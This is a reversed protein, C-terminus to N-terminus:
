NIMDMVTVIDESLHMERIKSCAKKFTKVAETFPKDKKWQPNGDQQIFYSFAELLEDIPYEHIARVDWMVQQKGHESSENEYLMSDRVENCKHIQIYRHRVLYQTIFKKIEGKTGVQGNNFRIDHGGEDKPKDSPVQLGFTDSLFSYLDRLTIFADLPKEKNWFEGFEQLEYARTFIFALIIQKLFNWLAQDEDNEHFLGAMKMREIETDVNSFVEAHAESAYGGKKRDIKVLSEVQQEIHNVDLFENRVSFGYLIGITDIQDEEKNQRTDTHKEWIPEISLHLTNLVKKVEKIHCDFQNNENKVPPRSKMCKQLIGHSTNKHMNAILNVDIPVDCKIAHLIGVVTRAVANESEDNGM